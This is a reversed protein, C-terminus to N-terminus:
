VEGRPTWCNFQEESGAIDDRTFEALPLGCCATIVEAEPVLHCISDAGLEARAMNPLPEQIWTTM